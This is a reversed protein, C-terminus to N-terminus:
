TCTSLPELSSIKNYSLVLVLLSPKIQLESLDAISCNSLNAFRGNSTDIIDEPRLKEPRVLNANLEYYNSRSLCYKFFNVFKDKMSTVEARDLDQSKLELNQYEEFNEFQYNNVDDAM